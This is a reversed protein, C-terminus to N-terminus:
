QHLNYFVTFEEKTFIRNWPGLKLPSSPVYRGVKPCPPSLITQRWWYKTIFFLTNTSDPYILHIIRGLYQWPIKKFDM